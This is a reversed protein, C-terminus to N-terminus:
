GEGQEEYAFTRKQLRRQSERESAESRGMGEVGEVRAEEGSRAEM